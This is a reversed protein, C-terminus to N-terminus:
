ACDGHRPVAMVASEKEPVLRRLPRKPVHFQVPDDTFSRWACDGEPFDTYQWVEGYADQYVAGDEYEPEEPERHKGVDDVILRAVLHPWPTCFEGSATLRTISDALEGSTIIDNDATTSLPIATLRM